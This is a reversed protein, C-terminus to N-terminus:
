GAPRRGSGSRPVWAWGSNWRMGPWGAAWLAWCEAWCALALAWELWSRFLVGWPVGPWGSRRAVVLWWIAGIVAWGAGRGNSAGIGLYLAWAPVLGVAVLLLAQNRHM